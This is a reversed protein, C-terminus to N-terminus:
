EPSLRQQQKLSANMEKIFNKYVKDTYSVNKRFMKGKTENMPIEKGNLKDYISKVLRQTKYSIKYIARDKTGETPVRFSEIWGNKLLKDFRSNNWSILENFEQFKSRSFYKEDYLFLLIDLEGQNLGYKDKIFYRIVRWYKLYNHQM